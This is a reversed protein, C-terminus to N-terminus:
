VNKRAINEMLEYSPTKNRTRDDIIKSIISFNQIKLKEFFLLNNITFEVGM